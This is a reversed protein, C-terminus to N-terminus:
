IFIGDERLVSAGIEEIIVPFYYSHYFFLAQVGSKGHAWPAKKRLQPRATSGVGPSRIM